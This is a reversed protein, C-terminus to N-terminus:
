KLDMLNNEKRFAKLDTWEKIKKGEKYKLASKLEQNKYNLCYGDKIGNDLQCKHDIQGKTDYFLWWDTKKNNIYHGEKTSTGENSYFHWYGNKKDGKFHGKESLQGSFHYFKWYGDKKNEEEWGESKLTGNLYYNRVYRKSQADTSMFFSTLLLTLIIKIKM